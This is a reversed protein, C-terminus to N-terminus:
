KKVKRKHDFCMQDNWVSNHKKHCWYRNFIMHADYDAAIAFMCNDCRAVTLEKNLPRYPDGEHKYPRYRYSNM